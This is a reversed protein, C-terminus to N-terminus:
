PLLSLFLITVHRATAHHGQLTPLLPMQLDPRHVLAIFYASSCCFAPQRLALLILFFCLTRLPLPFDSVRLSSRFSIKLFGITIVLSLSYHRFLFSSSLLWMDELKCIPPTWAPSHPRQTGREGGRGPLLCPCHDGVTVPSGRTCCRPLSHIQLLPFSM